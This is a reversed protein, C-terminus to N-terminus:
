KEDKMTWNSQLDGSSVDNTYEIKEINSIAEQDIVYVGGCVDLSIGHKKSLKELALTFKEFRIQEEQYREERTM